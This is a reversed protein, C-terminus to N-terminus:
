WKKIGEKLKSFLGQKQVAKTSAVAEEFGKTAEDSIWQKDITIASFISIYRGHVYRKNHNTCTRIWRGSEVFYKYSISDSLEVVIEKNDRTLKSIVKNSAFLNVAELAKGTPKSGVWTVYKKTKGMNIVKRHDILDGVM